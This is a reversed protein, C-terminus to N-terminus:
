SLNSVGSTDVAEAVRALTWIMITTEVIPQFPQQGANGPFLLNLWGTTVTSGV